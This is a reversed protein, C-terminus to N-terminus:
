VCTKDEKISKLYGRKLCSTHTHKELLRKFIDFSYINIISGCVQTKAKCFGSNIRVYLDLFPVLM